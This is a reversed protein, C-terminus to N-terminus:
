NNLPPTPQHNELPRMTQTLLGSLGWLLVRHGQGVCQQEAMRQLEELREKPHRFVCRDRYFCVGLREWHKCVQHILTSPPLIILRKSM